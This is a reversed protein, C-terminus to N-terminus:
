LRAQRLKLTELKVPLSGTIVALTSFSYLRKDTLM